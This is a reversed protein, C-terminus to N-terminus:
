VSLEILYRVTCQDERYICLEDERLYKGPGGHAYVYTAGPKLKQLKDWTLGYCKDIESYTTADYRNADDVAIAFVAMYGVNSTGHSWYSGRLSTYNISKIAKTAFYTGLGLMKGTVAAKPNLLLGNKLISWFNENKSGHFVLKTKCNPHAAMFAKYKDQTAKNVVIFARKFKPAVSGLHDTIQKITTPDEVLQCELGFKELITETPASAANADSNSTADVKAQSTQFNVLLVDYLKQERDLITNIENDDVDHLLYANVNNMKRPITKFLSMLTENFEDKFYQYNTKNALTNLKDIITKAQDLMEQTVANQSITYNQKITENAYKRLAKILENVSKDEIAKFGDDGAATTVVNKVLNTQDIYGKRLKEDFKKWYDDISYHRTQFSPAGIRGYEVTFGSQDPDVIMRYFKNNNNTTVCVLYKSEYSENINQM